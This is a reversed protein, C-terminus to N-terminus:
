KCSMTSQSKGREKDRSRRKKKGSAIGSDKDRLIKSYARAQSVPFIASMLDLLETQERETSQLLLGRLKCTM